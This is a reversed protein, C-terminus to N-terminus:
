KIEENRNRKLEKLTTKCYWLHEDQIDDETEYSEKRSERERKEKV